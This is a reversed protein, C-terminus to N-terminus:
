GPARSDNGPFYVSPLYLLRIVNLRARMNSTYLGQSATWCWASGGTIRGVIDHGAIHGVLGAVSAARRLFGGQLDSASCGV